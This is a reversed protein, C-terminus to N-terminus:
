IPPQVRYGNVTALYGEADWGFTGDRTYATSGDELLVVFFGEGAIAMATPVDSPVIAGASFQRTVTDVSVGSSSAVAEGAFLVDLAADSTLLDQFHVVVRKYGPTNINALNNAIAELNREHQIMGSRAADVANSM